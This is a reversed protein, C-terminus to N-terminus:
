DPSVMRHCYDLGVIQMDLCLPSTSFTCHLCIVLLADGNLRFHSHTRLYPTPRVLQQFFWRAEDERLGNKKVVYEFM